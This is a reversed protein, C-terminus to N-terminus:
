CRVCVVNSPQGANTTSAPGGVPHLWVQLLLLLTVTSCCSCGRRALKLGEDNCMLWQGALGPHLWAHQRRDALLHSRRTNHWGPQEHQCCCYVLPLCCYARATDHSVEHQCTFDHRHQEQAAGASWASCSSCKCSAWGLVAPGATGSVGAGASRRPHAPWDRKMSNSSHPTLLAKLLLVAQRLM